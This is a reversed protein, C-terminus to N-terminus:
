SFSMVGWLLTQKIYTHALLRHLDLSMNCNEQRGKAHLSGCIITIQNRQPSINVRGQLYHVGKCLYAIYLM